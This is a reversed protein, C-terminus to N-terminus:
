RNGRDTLEGSLDLAEGDLVITGTLSEDFRITDRGTWSGAPADGVPQNEAAARYAEWFTLTGDASGDCDLSTVVYVIGQSVAPAGEFAGIDVADGLIRENGAQDFPIPNGDVDTALANSGGDIAPSGPLLYYGWSGNSFRSIDGLMPDLPEAATGVQNGDIGNVFVDQSVGTEIYGDGILNFSGGIWGSERFVDPRLNGENHAIISNTISTSSASDSCFIGGGDYAGNHVLTSNTVAATGWNSIGGGNTETRNSTFVSNWVYLVAGGANYIGGGYDTAENMRFTSSVVSLMGDNGVGGGLEATNDKFYCGTIEVTGTNQLGGGQGGTTNRTVCCDVLSLNAANLIGGGSELSSGGTITLGDLVIESDSDAVEFVRSLSRADFVIRNDGETEIALRGFLPLAHGGLEVTGELTEAFRITDRESWSGASADGVQRNETAAHYAEWFTLVGDASTDSDLSTVIYTVGEPAPIGGEVAGIDVSTGIVREAGSLDNRLPTGTSDVALESNGADVAPSEPLLPFGWMGNQFRM